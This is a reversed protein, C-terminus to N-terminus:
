TAVENNGRKPFLRSFSYVLGAIGNPIFLVMTILIIGYIIPGYETFATVYESLINLIGAGLMGGWVSGLGGLVVMVVLEISFSFGFPSPDLYRQYHAYLSGAISAYVASLVFIQVKIKQVNVGMIQAALLSSHIARCARGVRSHILHISLLTLILVVVLVFYFYRIDKNLAITVLEFKHTVANRAISGIVLPPIDTMGNNGGTLDKFEEILKQIIVGIGLTAMALYHGELKLTPIGVLFAVVATALAALFISAWPDLHYVTTLVGSFYAGLAYFGAHGLSIQGAYGMLLNLGLVLISHIGIVIFVTLYYKNTIFKPLAFGVVALLFLIIYDRKM